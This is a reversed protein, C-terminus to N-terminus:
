KKGASKKAASKKGSKKTTAKSPGKTNGKVAKNTKAAKGAKVAKNDKAPAAVPAAPSRQAAIAPEPNTAPRAPSVRAPSAVVDTTGAVAGPVTRTGSVAERFATGPRFVPVETQQIMVPQGTRPNRAPRAARTRKEFVGFGTITVRDGANVTEVVVDVLGAVAAAAIKRDGLRDGLADILQAKNM